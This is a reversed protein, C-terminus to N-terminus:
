PRPRRPDPLARKEARALLRDVLAAADAETRCVLLVTDDGAVTGVVPPLGSRDLASALLQAGGPPTRLVGLNGAHDAGILLDEALRGLRVGLDDARPEATPEGDTDTRRRGGAGTEDLVYVGGHKVAGLEELDRSLTAQTVEVGRGALRESLEAQSRVEGGLLLEAVLAQRAAKTLPRRAQEGQTGTSV